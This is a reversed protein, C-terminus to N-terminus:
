PFYGDPRFSNELRDFILKLFKAEKKGEEKLSYKELKQIAVVLICLDRDLMTSIIIRAPTHRVKDVDQKESKLQSLRNSRTRKSALEAEGEEEQMEMVRKTICRARARLADRDDLFREFDRAAEVIPGESTRAGNAGSHATLAHAAQLTNRSMSSNQLREHCMILIM